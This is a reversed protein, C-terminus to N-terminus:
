SSVFTAAYAGASAERERVLPLVKRRLIVDHRSDQSYSTVDFVRSQLVNRGFKTRSRNLRRLRVKPM